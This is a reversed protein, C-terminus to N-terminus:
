VFSFAYKETFNTNAYIGKEYTRAPLKADINLHPQIFTKTNKNQHNLHHNQFWSQLTYILSICNTM